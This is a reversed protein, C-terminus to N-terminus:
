PSKLDNNFLQKNNKYSEASVQIKDYRKVTKKILSSDYFSIGQSPILQVSLDPFRILLVASVQFSLTRAKQARCVM